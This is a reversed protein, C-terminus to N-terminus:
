QRKRAMGEHQFIRALAAGCTEYTVVTESERELTEVNRRLEEAKSAEMRMSALRSALPRAAVNERVLFEVLEKESSERSIKGERM